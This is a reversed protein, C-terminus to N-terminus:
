SVNVSIKKPKLEESKPLKLELVGDKYSAKVKAENVGVGLRMSRVIKGYRREQRIVRGKKKDEKEMRAEANITLLGDQLSVDIDEKKVGPLDARVTYGDDDEKVDISPIMSGRELESFPQMPRFFGEFLNDFDDNFLGWGLQKKPSEIINKM